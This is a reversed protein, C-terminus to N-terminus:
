TQLTIKGGALFFDACPRDAAAVRRWLSGAHNVAIKFASEDSSLYDIVIVQNGGTGFLSGLRGTFDTGFAFVINHTRTVDNLKPEVNRFLEWNFLGARQV